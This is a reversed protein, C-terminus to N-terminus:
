FSLFQLRWSAALQCSADLTEASCSLNVEAQRRGSVKRVHRLIVPSNQDEDQGDGASPLKRLFGCIVLELSM